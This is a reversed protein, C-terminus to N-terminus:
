CRSQKDHSFIVCQVTVNNFGFIFALIITSPALVGQKIGRWNLKEIAVPAGLNENRVRLEALVSM